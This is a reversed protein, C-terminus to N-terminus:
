VLDYLYHLLLGLDPWSYIYSLSRIQAFLFFAQTTKRYFNLRELAMEFLALFVTVTTRDFCTVALRQLPVFILLFIYEFDLGKSNLPHILLEFQFVLPRLEQM